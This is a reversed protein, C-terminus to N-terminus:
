RAPSTITVLLIDLLDDNDYDLLAVGTGTTEVIWTKKEEGGSINIGTLGAERALDKYNVLPAKLGPPLPRPPQATASSVAVGIVFADVETQPLVCRYLEQFNRPRAPSHLPQLFNGRTLDPSHPFGLLFVVLM